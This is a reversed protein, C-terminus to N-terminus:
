IKEFYDINARYGQDPHNHTFPYKKILKGERMMTPFIKNKLYDVSKGLKTAVDEMKIYEIKCIKLIETELDKRNLMTTKKSKLLKSTDVKSVKYTQNDTNQIKKVNKKSTDVKRLKNKAESTDVKATKNIQNDINQRTKINKESTDVKRLKNKAESTDVKSTNNLQNDINKITKSSNESTDVKRM